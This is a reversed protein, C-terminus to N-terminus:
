SHGYLFEYSCNENAEYGTLSQMTNMQLQSM